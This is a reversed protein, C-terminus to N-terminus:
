HTEALIVRMNAKTYAYSCLVIRCRLWARTLCLTLTTLSLRQVNFGYLVLSPLHCVTSMANCSRGVPRPLERVM